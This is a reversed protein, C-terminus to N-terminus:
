STFMPKPNINQVMESWWLMGYVVNWVVVVDRVGCRLCGCCGACWTVFWQLLMYAVSYIEIHEYPIDVNAHIEYLINLDYSSVLYGWGYWIKWFDFCLHRFHLSHFPVAFDWVGHWLSGRYWTCQVTSRLISTCSTWTQTFRTCFTWIMARFVYRWEYWIKWLDFCLHRFHLSHFRASLNRIWYM